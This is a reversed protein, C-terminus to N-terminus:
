LSVVVQGKSYEEWNYSLDEDSSDTSNYVIHNISLSIRHGVVHKGNSYEEFVALYFTANSISVGIEWGPGSKQSFDPMTFHSPAPHRAYPVAPFNAVDFQGFTHGAAFDTSGIFIKPEETFLIVTHNYSSVSYDAISKYEFKFRAGPAIQTGNAPFVIGPTAAQVCALTWTLAFSLLKSSKFIM